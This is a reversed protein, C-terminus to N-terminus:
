LDQVRGDMLEALDRLETEDLAAPEMTMGDFGSIAAITVGVGNRVFSITRWTVPVPGLGMSVEGTVTVSVGTDGLGDTREAEITATTEKGLTQNYGTLPECEDIAAVFADIQEDTVGLPTPDLRVDVRGNDDRDFERSVRDTNEDDEPSDLAAAGPCLQVWTEDISSPHGEGDDDSDQGGPEDADDPPDDILDDGGAEYRAGLDAATPLIEALRASAAANGGETPLPDATTATTTATSGETTTSQPAQNPTTSTAAGAGSRVDQDGGTVCGVLLSTMALLVAATIAARQVRTM